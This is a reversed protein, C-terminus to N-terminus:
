KTPSLAIGSFMQADVKKLAKGSMACDGEILELLMGDIDNIRIHLVVLPSSGAGMQFNGLGNKVWARLLFWVIGKVHGKKLTKLRYPM